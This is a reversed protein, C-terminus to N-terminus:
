CTHCFPGPSYPPYWYLNPDWPALCNTSDFADTVICTHKLDTDWDCLSQNFNSAGQFMREMSGLSTLDWNSLDQNFASAYSFMGGM